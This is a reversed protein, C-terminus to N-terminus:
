KVAVRHTALIAHRTLPRRVLMRVALADDDQLPAAGVQTAQATTLGSAPAM